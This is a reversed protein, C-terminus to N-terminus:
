AYLIIMRLAREKKTYVFFSSPQIIGGCKERM